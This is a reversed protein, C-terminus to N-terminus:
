DGGDDGGCSLPGKLSLSSLGQAEWWLRLLYSAISTGKVVRRRAFCALYGCLGVGFGHFRDCSPVVPPLTSSSECVALSLSAGDRM